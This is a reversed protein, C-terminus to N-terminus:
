KKVLGWYMVTGAILVFVTIVVGLYNTGAPDPLVEIYEGKLDVCTCNADQENTAMGTISPGLEILILTGCLAILILYAFSATKM